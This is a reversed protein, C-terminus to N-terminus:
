LGPRKQTRCEGELPHRGSKKKELKDGGVEYELCRELEQLPTINLGCMKSEAVPLVFIYISRDSIANPCEM